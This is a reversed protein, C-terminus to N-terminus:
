AWGGARALRTAAAIPDLVFAGVDAGRERALQQVRLVPPASLESADFVAPDAVADEAPGWFATEGRRLLLLRDADGLFEEASHSVVVVGAAERASAVIDRVTARGRADLGATPEDLLLYDPNMALVGAIAVRRAEGGSLSFPSRPGFQEADLGVAAIAERAADAADQATAGLNRPGFAVDDLVTDAFLQAEPDQFVLGVRGRASRRTLPEGDITASGDAAELLGAALTLLTSKGSGTAGLVLVLEGPAVAFTVGSLARTAFTTGDGFTYGVNDLTLAV